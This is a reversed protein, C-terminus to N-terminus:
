FKECVGGGKEQTSSVEEGEEKGTRAPAEGLGWRILSTCLTTPTPLTSPGGPGAGEVETVQAQGGLSNHRHSVLGLDVAAPTGQLTQMSIGQFVIVSRVFIPWWYFSVIVKDNYDHFM